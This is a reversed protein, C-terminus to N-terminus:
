QAVLRLGVTGNPYNVDGLRVLNPIQLDKEPLEYEDGVFIANHIGRLSPWFIPGFTYKDFSRVMGVDGHINEELSAQKQYVHPDIQLYFLFFIYPQGLKDTFYVHSYESLNNKIINIAPQYPYVWQSASYYPSHVYYLELYYSVFFMTVFVYGALLIKKSFLVSLGIAMITVLPIVEPLSRVASVSDRSLAAPLPSFVLWLLVFRSFGTPHAALYVTGLIILIIDTIHFNGYGYVSQRLSSWDGTAFLFRPSLHNLYRQVIGRGQGLIESHFIFYKWDPSITNDQSLVNLVSAQSRTYSFVSYVKLRGSQSGLGILIPILFLSTLLVPLIIRKFNIQKYFSLLLALGILPTFMKAGQYAWFTLGFSLGSAFILTSSKTQLHRLFLVVGLLTLLLSLNAEWAGRSFQLAWPNLALIIVSFEPAYSKKDPFLYRMLLYVLPLLLTGFLASPLRTSFEGLGLAAVSPVTFYVYLGPKYDGFSKFVVPNPQGYEDKGTKLLSYANYGLAAEDWTFGAPRQSLATVRMLLGVLTFGILLILRKKM